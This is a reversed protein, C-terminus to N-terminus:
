ATRRRPPHETDRALAERAAQVADLRDSKGRRRAPRKPHDVEIVRQGHRQLFRVLGVGYSRTGEVAWALRPGPAHALVFNLLQEFGAPDTSIVTAAINAGTPRLLAATHTDRHTDVGIVADVEEALM